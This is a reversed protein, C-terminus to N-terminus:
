NIENKDELLILEKAYPLTSIWDCFFHWEKLKHNQRQFYINRLNAYSLTVTRTQLWSEPLLRILEKWYRKDKTELYRKRLTECTNVIWEWIDDTYDDPNWPEKDYVKLPTYDDMEFCEMTIPASTLKHMTSTSNAM